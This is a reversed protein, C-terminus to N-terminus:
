VLTTPARGSLPLIVKRPILIRAILTMFEKWVVQFWTLLRSMTSCGRIQDMTATRTCVHNGVMELLSRILRTLSFDTEGQGEVALFTFIGNRPMSSLLFVHYAHSWRM